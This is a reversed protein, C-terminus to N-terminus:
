GEMLSSFDAQETKETHSATSEIVETGAVDIPTEPLSVDQVDMEEVGYMGSLDEPFAERLAQMLAVKRIMTAPKNSWQANVTGDRKKGIYEELQVTIEIPNVYGDVYVKAWGGALIENGVVITGIRNSVTEKEANYVVVGADYGMFKSNRHARKTLAEKGTVITAPQNGYKVLYAERLFPNLGQYKCLNIFMVIEQATINSADGSVLYNKVTAPSLKVEKGNSEFICELATSKNEQARLSTAM